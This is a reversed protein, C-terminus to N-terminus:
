PPKLWMWKLGLPETVTSGTSSAEHQEEGPRMPVCVYDGFQAMQNMHREREVERAALHHASRGVLILGIGHLPSREKRADKEPKVAVSASIWPNVSTTARRRTKGAM